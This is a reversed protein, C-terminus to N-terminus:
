PGPGGSSRGSARCTSPRAALHAPAGIDRSATRSTSRPGPRSRPPARASRAAAPRPASAAPSRATASCAPPARPPRRAPRAADLDDRREDVPEVRLGRASPGATRATRPGAPRPSPRARPPSPTAASPRRVQREHQRARPREARLEFRLRRRLLVARRELHQAPDPAVAQRREVVARAATRKGERQCSGNPMTPISASLKPTGTTAHSDPPTPSHCGPGPSTRQPSQVRERAREGFGDTPPEQQQGAEIAVLRDPPQRREVPLTARASVVPSLRSASSVSESFSCFRCPVRRGPPDDPPKIAGRVGRLTVVEASGDQHGLDM